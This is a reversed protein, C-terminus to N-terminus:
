QMVKMIVSHEQRAIELFSNNITKMNKEPDITMSDKFGLEVGLEKLIKLSDQNYSGGPHSM